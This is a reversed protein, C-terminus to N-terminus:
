EFDGIKTLLTNLNHERLYKYISILGPKERKREEFFKQFIENYYKEPLETLDILKKNRRFGHQENELLSINPYSSIIESIRKKSVRKQRKGNVVFTDDDSLYNPIGDGIDGSLIKELLYIAPNEASIFNKQTPSYQQVNEFQQLQVFDRDGSVILVPEINKTTESTYKTLVFIVDDAECKNVEIFLFALNERIEDKIKNLSKFIEDWDLYSLERRKKRNEKYFPFYDKRWYRSSHSDVAFVIQHNFGLFSKFKTNYLRISNLVLHRLFNEEVYENKTINIQQMLNSILLQNLDILIM